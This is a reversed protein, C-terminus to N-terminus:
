AKKGDIEARILNAQDQLVKAELEKQSAVANFVTEKQKGLVTELKAKYDSVFSADINATTGGVIGIGEKMLNILQVQKKGEESMGRIRITPNRTKVM